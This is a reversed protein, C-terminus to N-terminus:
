ASRERPAPSAPRAGARARCGAARGALARRWCPDACREAGLLMAGNLTLFIAAALPRMGLRMVGYVTAAFFGALLANLWAVAGWSVGAVRWTLGVALELYVGIRQFTDRPVPPINALEGCGLTDRSQFLFTALAPDHNVWDVNHFGKGCAFMVAPAFEEQYFSPRSGSRRIQGDTWLALAATLLSLVLACAVDIRNRAPLNM